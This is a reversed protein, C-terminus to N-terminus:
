AANKWMISSRPIEGGGDANSVQNTEVVCPSASISLVSLAAACAKPLRSQGPRRCAAPLEFFNTVTRQSFRRKHIADRPQKMNVADCGPSHQLSTWRMMRREM